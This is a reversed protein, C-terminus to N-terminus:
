NQPWMQLFLDAMLRMDKDTSETVINEM